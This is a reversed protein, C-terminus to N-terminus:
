VRLGLDAVRRSVILRQLFADLRGDGTAGPWRLVSEAVNRVSAGAASDPFAELVAKGLRDARKVADDAPLAPLRSLSLNLHREAAELMNTYVTAAEADSRAKNAWIHLRRQGFATAVRKILAYAQTIAQRQATLLVVCEDAAALAPFTPEARDHALDLFVWDPAADLELLARSFRLRSEDSLTALRRLGERAPILVLGAAPEHLVRELRCAGRLVDALEGQQPLDLRVALSDPGSGEDVIWVRKGQKVLAWALNFVASSQGSRPKGATFAVVRQRSPALLRRLGEAQDGGFGSM